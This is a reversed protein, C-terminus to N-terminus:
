LNGGIELAGEGVPLVAQLRDGALVTRTGSVMKKGHKGKRRAQQKGAAVTVGLGTTETGVLLPLLSPAM